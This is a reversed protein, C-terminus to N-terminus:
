STGLVIEMSQKLILEARNVKMVVQSRITILGSNVYPSAPHLCPDLM